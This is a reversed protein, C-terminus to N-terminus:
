ECKFADDIKKKIVEDSKGAKKEKSIFKGLKGWLDQAGAPSRSMESRFQPAYKKFLEVVIGPSMGPKSLEELAHAAESKETGALGSLVEKYEDKDMLKAAVEDGSEAPIVKEEITVAAEPDVKESRAVEILEDATHEEIPKPLPAPKQPTRPHAIHAPRAPPAPRRHQVHKPKKAAAGGPAHDVTIRSPAREVKRATSAVERMENAEKFRREVRAIKAASAGRRMAQLGRIGNKLFSFMFAPPM